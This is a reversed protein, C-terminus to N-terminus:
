LPTVKRAKDNSSMIFFFPTCKIVNWFVDKFSRYLSQLIKDSWPMNKKESKFLRLDYREYVTPGVLFDTEKTKDSIM